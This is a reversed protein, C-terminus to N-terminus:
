SSMRRRKVQKLDTLQMDALTVLDWIDTDSGPVSQVAGVTVSLPVPLLAAAGRIREATGDDYGPSVIVFEDGGTRAVISGAPCVVRLALTLRALADDGALHGLRDNVAKFDDVDIVLIRQPRGRDAEAFSMELGRRNAAGTLPDTVSWAHLSAAIVDHRNRLRYMMEASGILIAAASLVAAFYLVPAVGRGIAALLVLGLVVLHHMLVVPRTLYLSVVLAPLVAAFVALRRGPIDGAVLISFLIMADASLAGLLLWSTPIAPRQTVLWGGVGVAVISSIMLLAAAVDNGTFADTTLRALLAITAFYVLASGYLAADGGSAPRHPTPLAAVPPPVLDTVRYEDLDVHGTRVRDRGARKARYLAHDAADLLGWLLQPDDRVAEPAVAVVGVSVTVAPMVTSAALAARVQEAVDGPSGAVVAALEEGGTRALLGGPGIVDHVVGCLDTLVRDGVTHGHEDNIAKFHDVDLLVVGVDAHAREADRVLAPFGQILGRRNLAGTLGDTLSTRWLQRSQERTNDALRHVIVAAVVMVGAAYAAELISRPQDYWTTALIVGAVIAAAFVTQAIWALRHQHTAAIVTPIVLWLLMSRQGAPDGTSYILVIPVVDLVVLGGATVAPSSIRPTLVLFAGGVAAAILVILQVPSLGSGDTHLPMLRIPIIAAVILMAAGILTAARPVPPVGTLPAHAADGRDAWRLM